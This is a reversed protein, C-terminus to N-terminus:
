VAIKHYGFLSSRRDILLYPSIQPIQKYPFNLIFQQYILQTSVIGMLAMNEVESQNDTTEFKKLLKRVKEANFIGANMLSADSINQEILPFVNKHFLSKGIPARYPHKPRNVISEPLV